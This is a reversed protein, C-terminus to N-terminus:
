RNLTLKNDAIIILLSYLAASMDPQFHWVAMLLILFTLSRETSAMTKIKFFYFAFWDINVPEINRYLRAIHIWKMNQIVGFLLVSKNQILSSRMECEKQDYNQISKGINGKVQHLNHSINFSEKINVSNLLVMGHAM